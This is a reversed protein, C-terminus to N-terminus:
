RRLKELQGTEKRVLGLREQMEKRGPLMATDTDMVFKVDKDWTLYSSLSLVGLDTGGEWFVDRYAQDSDFDFQVHWDMIDTDNEIPDSNIVLRPVDWPVHKPISAFPLQLMDSGLIILLDCNEADVQAQRAHDTVEEHYWQIDPQCKQYCKSCNPFQFMELREKLWLLDYEAGCTMNHCKWKLFSGSFEVLKDDRIGCLRELNDNNETWNRLLLGKEQLTRIFYHAFTPRHNGPWMAQIFRLMGYPQFMFHKKEFLHEADMKEMYGTEGMVKRAEIGGYKRYNPIGAARSIGHGSLVLINQCEATMMYQAVGKLSLENLRPRGTLSVPHKEEHVTVASNEVLNVYNEKNHGFIKFIQFITRHFIKNGTANNVVHRTRLVPYSM